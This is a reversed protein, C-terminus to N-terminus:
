GTALYHSLTLRHSNNSWSHSQSQTYLQSVRVCVTDPQRHTGSNSQKRATHSYHLTVLIYQNTTGVQTCSQRPTHILHKARLWQSGTHSQLEPQRAIGNDVTPCTATMPHSLDPKDTVRGPVPDPQLTNPGMHHLRGAKETDDLQSHRKRDGAGVM